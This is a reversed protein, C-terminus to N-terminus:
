PAPVVQQSDVVLEMPTAAITRNVEDDYLISLKTTAPVNLVGDVRMVGVMLWSRNIPTTVSVNGKVYVFGRFQVLGDATGNNGLQSNDGRGLKAQASTCTNITATWCPYVDTIAPYYPYEKLATPPIRLTLANGDYSNGTAPGIDGLVLNKTVILAGSNKPTVTDKLDIAVARLEASGEVYIVANPNTNLTYNSFVATETSAIVFHGCTPNGAAICLPSVAADNIGDSLKPPTIGTTIQARGQYAGIDIVPPFGLSANAWYEKNDTDQPPVSLSRPRVPTAAPDGTVDGAAFKRPFLKSNQQGRLTWQFSDLLVIPGWHVALGATSASNLPLKEETPTSMLLLAAPAFGQNFQMGAVTRKSVITMLARNDHTNVQTSASGVVKIGVQYNQLPAGVACQITYRGGSVGQYTTAAFESPFTGALAADWIGQTSGLLRMAYQTGEQATAMAKQSRVTSITSKGSMRNFFVVSPVSIMLVLLILISMLLVQGAESTRKM